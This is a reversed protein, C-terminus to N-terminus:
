ELYLLMTEKSADLATSLRLQTGPIFDLSGNEAVKPIAATFSYRGTELEILQQGGSGAVTYTDGAITFTLPEGIYNRVLLGPQGSEPPPTPSAEPQISAAERQPQADLSLRFVRMKQPVPTPELQGVRYDPEEPSLERSFGLGTYGGARLIAQGNLGANGASASYSIPGPPLNIQRGGQAPITYLTGALDLTLGEGIYNVIVLGSQGPELPRRAPRQIEPPPASPPATLTAAFFVLRDKPEALIIGTASIVAASKDLRAGLVVTQGAAVEVSGNSGAKGPILGSYEYRGPPLSLTLRGGEPMTDSGPVQYVQQAITLHLPSGVFNIFVLTAPTAQAQVSVGGFWCLSLILVGIRIAMSM